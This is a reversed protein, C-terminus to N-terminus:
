EDEGIGDNATELALKWDGNKDKKWIKIYTGYFTTDANKPHIAYVGYTYGLDGSHSVHAFQPQWNITYNTDDIGLFYDIADAGTIPLTQPRLLVANSDLVNLFANKMGEKESRLSFAKDAAILGAKQSDFASEEQKEQFCSLLFLTSFILAIRM